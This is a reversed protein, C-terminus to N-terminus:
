PTRVASRLLSGIYWHSATAEIHRSAWLSPLSRRARISSWTDSEGPGAGGMTNCDSARPESSTAGADLRGENRAVALAPQARSRRSSSRTGPARRTTPETRRAKRGHAVLRLEADHERRM